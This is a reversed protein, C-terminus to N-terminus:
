LVSRAVDLDDLEERRGHLRLKVVCFVLGVELVTPREAYRQVLVNVLCPSTQRFSLVLNRDAGRFCVKVAELVIPLLREVLSNLRGGLHELLM